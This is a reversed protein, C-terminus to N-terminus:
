LPYLTGSDAREWCERLVGALLVARAGLTELKVCEGRKSDLWGAPGLGDLVPCGVSSAFNVDSGFDLTREFVQMGMKKAIWDAVAFLSRNEGSQLMVPRGGMVQYSTATGQIHQQHLLTEVDHQAHAMGKDTMFRTELIARAYSGQNLVGTEGDAFDVVIRGDGQRRSQKWLEIIKHSMEVLAQQSGEPSVPPEVEVQVSYSRQGARGTVLAGERGGSSFGFAFLSQKAEAEIYARSAPAGVKSDATLLCTLPMDQLLGVSALARLAMLAVALGAKMDLVGSGSLVRGDNVVPFVNWSRLTPSDIHGILLVQGKAAFIDERATRRAIISPGYEQQLDRQLTFGLEKLAPGFLEALAQVGAVNLADAQIEASKQLFELMESEHDRVFSEVSRLQVDKM